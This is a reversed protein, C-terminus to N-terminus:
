GLGSRKIDLGLRTTKTCLTFWATINRIMKFLAKVLLRWWEWPTLSHHVRHMLYHHWLTGNLNTNLGLQSIDDHSVTPHSHTPTVTYFHDPSERLLSTARLSVLQFLNFLLVSLISAARCTDCKSTSIECCFYWTEYGMPRSQNETMLRFTRSAFASALAQSVVTALECWLSVFHEM